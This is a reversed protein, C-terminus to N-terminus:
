QFIGFNNTGNVIFNDAVYIKIFNNSIVSSTKEFSMNKM